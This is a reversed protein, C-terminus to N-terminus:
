IVTYLPLTMYPLYVYVMVLTVALDTRLIRLPHDIIHLWTLANNLVGEPSLFIRWAFIRVIFNTWFPIIILILLINKMKESSRAIFYAVPYGLALCLLTTIAALRFANLYAIIYQHQFIERYASLSLRYEIDYGTTKLFSYFLMVLYPIFFFQLLWILCPLSLIWSRTNKRTELRKELDSYSMKEAVYGNVGGM